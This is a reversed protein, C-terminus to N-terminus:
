EGGFLALQRTGGRIEAALASLRFTFCCPVGGVHLVSVVDSGWARPAPCRDVPLPTGVRASLVAGSWGYGAHRIDDEPDGREVYPRILDLAAARAAERTVAM